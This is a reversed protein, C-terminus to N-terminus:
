QMSQVRGIPCSPLHAWSAFLSAFLLDNNGPVVSKRQRCSIPVRMNLIVLLRMSRQLLVFDAMFIKNM